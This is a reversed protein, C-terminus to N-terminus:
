ISLFNSRMQVDGSAMVSIVMWNGLILDKSKYASIVNFEMFVEYIIEASAGSCMGLMM